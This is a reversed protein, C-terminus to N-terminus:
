FEQARWLELVKKIYKTVSKVDDEDVRWWKQGNRIWTCNGGSNVTDQKCQSDSFAHLVTRSSGHLHQAADIRVYESCNDVRHIILLAKISRSPGIALVGLM